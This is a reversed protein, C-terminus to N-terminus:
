RTSTPRSRTARQRRRHRRPHRTRGAARAPRHPGPAPAFDRDPDEANLRAEVAHGVEDPPTRDLRGGSASTSRCGCWTPARHGGRHDPARGAPPHQGRPLRLVPRAPPLPVRRHRRRRVRGRHRAARGVGQARRGARRRRARALCVGRHGEPQPAAGLLRARRDGVGLGARRRHGAGRRAARRHRAERPLRRGLRLGAAGRRPHARLRRRARRRLRGQPHRSRRRWRHGQADAPLRDTGRRRHRGRPHRRRGPEVARGARRGGRRDAQLRDQRRPPAHGGPEARHLHRRHARVARRLRRGRRRLGLGGLRRRGGDRAACARARRPRPVAAAIGTRPRLRCGGRARVDGLAGGRHAARDTEIRHGDPGAQANLDRVAHILRMAAEGRNVIAIRQFM